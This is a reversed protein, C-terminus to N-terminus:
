PREVSQEKWHLEDGNLRAENESVAYFRVCDGPSLLFPDNDFPRFTRVPTMGIRRWGTPISTGTLVTQRNAVLLSGSPVSSDYAERRPVTFERPLEALYALGPSFGLCLVRLSVSTHLEILRECSIGTLDAVEELDPGAAGGYVAPFKWTRRGQSPPSDYWNRSELLEACWMKIRRFTVQEPDFRVLVSRITPVLEIVGDPYSRSAELDFATVARSVDRGYTAGFTVLLGQDGAVNITPYTTETM